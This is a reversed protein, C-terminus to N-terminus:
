GTARSSSTTQATRFFFNANRLHKQKAPTLLQLPYDPESFIFERIKKAQIVLEESDGGFVEYGRLFRNLVGFGDRLYWLLAKEQEADVPQRRKIRTLEDDSVDDAWHELNLAATIKHEFTCDDTLKKANKRFVSSDFAENWGMHTWFQTEIKAAKEIAQLATSESEVDNKAKSTNFDRSKCAQFLIGIVIFSSM